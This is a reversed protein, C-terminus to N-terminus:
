KVWLQDFLFIYASHFQYNGVNEALFDSGSLVLPIWIARDVAAHDVETWKATAAALDTTQLSLAQGYLADFASDCYRMPGGGNCTMWGFFNSPSFFDPVWGSLRIQLRGEEDAANVADEGITPDVTVDYGLQGLVEALYDRLLVQGDSQIPGVTIASGRTGSADVLKNAREPDPGHWQGGADPVMTYPCYPVYGPTGPPLYQCTLAVAPQGGNFDGVKQRDIALDLAQRAELKDFPALQTNVVLGETVVSGFHLQAPYKVGLEALQETSMRNPGRAIMFDAQGNEIRAIREDAPLGYTWVIEDPFGDPRVDADWVAFHQNRTFRLGDGTASVLVYPGTGPFAGEIPADMPVGNPVPYALTMALKYVFDPDPQTLNFTVTGAKDDTAIGASLDCATAPAGDPNLCADAGKITGFFFRGTPDGFPGAAVQFGREIGRRFDAARVPEGTSYVMGPRLLFTYTLGGNTPSAIAAALDPLLVTGASGGVRRYGVLGDAELTTANAIPVGAPDLDNPM